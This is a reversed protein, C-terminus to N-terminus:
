VGAARTAGAPVAGGSAGCVEARDGTVAYRAILEDPTLTREAPPMDVSMYAFHGRLEEIMAPTWAANANWAIAPPRGRAALGTARLRDVLAPVGALARGALLMWDAREAAFMEGRPGRSAIAIPLAGPSWPLAAGRVAFEGAHEVVQGRLLRDVVDVCEV